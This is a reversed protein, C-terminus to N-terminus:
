WMINLLRDRNQGLETVSFFEEDLKNAMGRGHGFANNCYLQMCMFNNDVQCYAERFKCFSTVLNGLTSGINSMTFRDAVVNYVDGGALTALTYKWNDNVSTVARKIWGCQLATIFDKLKFLGLGGESVPAYIREKSLSFGKTVFHEMKNELCILQEENPTFISAVYNIQSILFTKYITIKGPLSFFFRDWFRILKDVKLTIKNYNAATIDGYNQLTFGLLTIKDTFVFGLNLIENSIRGTLDGIRMVFSKEFNCALGSLLRFEELIKKLARLSEHELAILNSSDDAFSENKNTPGLGEGKYYRVPALGNQPVDVTPIVSQIEDALEIRFIQIQAALNYLIPSPSDGQAHGKALEFAASLENNALQVCANRGTGISRLWSKIREGFNFFDYVKEMYAHSVSDFAKSQDISAIVGEINQKNCYDMAERCNIIVEQIQRLKSFGKQARSLLRDVFKQIRTNIVRSVLKYFNSLLSIPRWNGLKTLDGKKPILKIVATMFFEPLSHNGLGETACKFLPYRFIYWFQKIFRYSYGDIGPASRLNAKLLSKDLEDLSLPADLEEKEQENLKSALVLPHNSIHPGLFNDIEGGVWCDKKYLNAYYGRIFNNRDTQNLFDRGEPDRINELTEPNNKNKGLSVLLPTAKEANLCEFIKIDKLRERLDIDSQTKLVNELTKIQECNNSYDNKLAKLNACISDRWLNKHRSLVRQMKSGYKKVEITLSEFFLVDNCSKKINELINLPLMDDIDSCIQQEIGAIELALLESPNNIAKNELKSVLERLLILCADVKGKERTFVEDMSAYGIPCPVFTRDISFLHARRAALNVSFDLVKVDLFCNSIANKKTGKPRETGLELNVNKHDFLKCRPSNAITCDLVSELLEVSVIFFDLRSRNLRM